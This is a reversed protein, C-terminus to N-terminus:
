YGVDVPDKSIAQLILLVQSEDILKDHTARAKAQTKMGLLRQLRCVDGDRGKLYGSNAAIASWTYTGNAVLRECERALPAAPLRM